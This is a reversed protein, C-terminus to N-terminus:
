EETVDETVAPIEFQISGDLPPLDPLMIGGNELAADLAAQLRTQMSALAEKVSKEDNLVAQMEENGITYFQMNFLPPIDEFGQYLDAGSPKLTYFAAINRGEDDRIYKTRVPFQGIFARSKVRAYDDGITFRIFEWAADPNTSEANIAFIDNFTMSHTFDPNAPDVPMTVVDWNKIAKDPVISAAERLQSVLYSTNISMAVKGSVFPDQLLFDQYMMAGGFNPSESKYLAGSRVANVAMEYVNAWSDTDISVRKDAPNLLRLGYTLGIQRALDQVESGGASLGAYLGYIRDEGEGDTPFRAALNLLDEWSMRDTPYEIGHRDFLDKNYFVAQSYFYSALGYLEGGSKERLMDVMGPILEDLNIKDRTIYSELSVLRGEKAYKEYQEQNLLLIDPKENRILEDLKENYDGESLQIGGTSAVVTEIHPNLAYFVNGYENQFSQENWYMVKITAPEASQKGDSGSRCSALILATMLLLLILQPLRWGVKRKKL